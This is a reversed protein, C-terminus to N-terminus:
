GTEVPNAAAATTEGLLRQVLLFAWPSSATQDSGAFTRLAEEITDACERKSGAAESWASALLAPSLTDGAENTLGLLADNVLLLCEGKALVVEM